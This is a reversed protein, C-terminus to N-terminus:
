HPQLPAVPTSKRNLQFKALRVWPGSEDDEEALLVFNDTASLIRPLDDQEGLLSGTTTDFIKTLLRSRTVPQTSEPADRVYEQLQVVGVSNSILVMGAVRRSRLKGPAILETRITHDREVIGSPEFDRVRKRWLFRGDRTFSLLEGTRPFAIIRDPDSLCVMYGLSVIGNRMWSGAVLPPGFSTQVAGDLSYVNFLSHKSSTYGMGVYASDFACVASSWAAGPYQRLAKAHGDSVAFTTLRALRNDLVAFDGNALRFMGSADQLEGPGSGVPALATVTGVPDAVVGIGTKRDIIVASGDTFAAGLFVSSSFQDLDGKPPHGLRYREEGLTILLSDVQQGMETLPLLAEASAAREVEGRGDPREGSVCTTLAILAVLAAGRTKLTIARRRVQQNM